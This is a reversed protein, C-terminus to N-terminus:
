PMRSQSTTVLADIAFGNVKAVAVAKAYSTPDMSPTRSLVWLYKRDPSGVLAWSYDDALGLIWYDGWVIPLFALFAPAFRVKLRASSEADVVKAMGTAEVVTGDQRRCRNTVSLRGEAALAYTARVDGACDAQFRNPLRAIEFWDGLYRNLDVAPVTRVPALTQSSRGIAAICAVVALVRLGGEGIRRPLRSQV